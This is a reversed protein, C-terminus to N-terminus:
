STAASTRSPRWARATASAARRAPIATPIGTWTSSSGSSSARHRQDDGLQAVRLLRRQRAAPRLLGPLVRERAPPQRDGEGGRRAGPEDVPRGLADGVHRHHEGVELHEVHEREGLRRHVRREHPRLGHRRRPRLAHRAGLCKDGVFSSSSWRTGWYVPVVTTSHMVVGGHWSLLSVHGGGGPKAPHNASRSPIFGGAPKASLEPKSGASASAAVVLVGAFAVAVVTAAIRKVRM